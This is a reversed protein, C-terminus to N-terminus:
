LVVMKEYSLLLYRWRFLRIILLSTTIAICVRMASPQLHISDPKHFSGSIWGSMFIDILNPKTTQFIVTNSKTVLWKNCHNALRELAWALRVHDLFRILFSGSGHWKLGSPLGKDCTLLLSPLPHVQIILYHYNFHLIQNPTKPDKHWFFLRKQIQSSLVAM